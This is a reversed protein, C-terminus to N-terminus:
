KYVFISYFYFLFVYIGEGGELMCVCMSLDEAQLTLRIHQTWMIVGPNCVKVLFHSLQFDEILSVTM